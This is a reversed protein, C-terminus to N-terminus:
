FINGIAGSRALVLLDMTLAVAVHLFVGPVWSKTRLAMYGLALGAGIAAFAEPVPKTFHIMTYPVTMIPIALAGVRRSLGFTLFGRFFAEVGIFQLGYGMEYLWFTVGGAAARDYFPYYSLFSSFSSAWVLLPLMLLYFLGYVPLHRLAGRVRFGYDRPRKRLLWYGVALPMAVRLVLSALGWWLYAGVGIDDPAISSAVDAVWGSLGSSFFFGPSGWYFFAVLFVTATLLVVIAERETEKTATGEVDLPPLRDLIVAALTDLPRNPAPDAAV